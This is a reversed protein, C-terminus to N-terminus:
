AQAAPEEGFLLLPNNGYRQYGAEAVLLDLTLSALDDAVPEVHLDRAMHVIKLYHQCHECTEAEVAPRRSGKDADSDALAQLSQYHIGRTAACHACQIRGLHWQASCLSCHLYRQGEQEGGLRSISAVPLSDCCPCRQAGDETAAFRAPQQAGLDAVRQSFYRQLGVAILPAAALDLGLTIGALLRDAQQELSEDPWAALALVAARAPSDGPLKDALQQLMARLATRWSPNRECSAADLWPGDANAAAEVTRSTSPPQAQVAECALALLLLYDRMAHGAALQRLRLAREAFLRSPDPLLLRPVELHARQSIDQPTPPAPTEPMQPLLSFSGGTRVGSPLRPATARAIQM